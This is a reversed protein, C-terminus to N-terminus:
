DSYVTRGAVSIRTSAKPDLKYKEGGPWLTKVFTYGSQSSYEVVKGKALNKADYPLGEFSWTWEIERDFKPLNVFSPREEGTPRELRKCHLTISDKLWLAILQNQYSVAYVNKTGKLPWTIRIASKCWDYANGPLSNRIKLATASFDQIDRQLLSDPFYELVQNPLGPCFGEEKIPSSLTIDWEMLAPLRYAVKTVEQNTTQNDFRPGQRSIVLFLFFGVVIAALILIVRKM